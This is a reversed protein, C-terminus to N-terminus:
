PVALKYAYTTTAIYFQDFKDKPQQLFRSLPSDFFWTVMGLINQYWQM